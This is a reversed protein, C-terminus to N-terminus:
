VKCFPMLLCSFLSIMAGVAYQVLVWVQVTAEVELSCCSHLTLGVRNAELRKSLSLLFLVIPNLLVSLKDDLRSELIMVHEEFFITFCFCLLDLMIVLRFFIDGDDVLSNMVKVGVVIVM